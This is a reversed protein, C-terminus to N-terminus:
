RRRIRKGARSRSVHSRDDNEGVNAEVRGSVNAFMNTDFINAFVYM